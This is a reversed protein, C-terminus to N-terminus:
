SPNANEEIVRKGCYLCNRSAIVIYRLNALPRKCHPCPIGFQRNARYLLTLMAVAALFVGLVFPAVALLEGSPPSFRSKLWSEVNRQFPAYVSMLTLLIGMPVLCAFISRRSYAAASKNFEEVSVAMM